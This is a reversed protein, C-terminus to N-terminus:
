TVWRVATIAQRIANYNVSVNNQVLYYAQGNYVIKDSYTYLHSDGVIEGQLTIEEAGEYTDLNSAIAQLTSLDAVPYTQRARAVGTLPVTIQRQSGSPKIAENQADITYQSAKNSPAGQSISSGTEQGFGDYTTTGYWGNGLPVHVTRSGDIWTGTADSGAYVDTKEEALFFDNESAEYSYAVRTYTVEDTDVTEKLSIRKGEDLDQYTYTTTRNGDVEQTLYGDTYTLSATGWSITGSFPEGGTMSDSSAIEKPIVTQYQSDAWQTRRISHSITPRVTWHAPTRTNTEYGQQVLYITGNDIYLSIGMGPVDGTWGILRNLIEGFTGSLVEYFDLTLGKKVSYNIDTKPYFDAGLYVIPLGIESSIASLHDRFTPREWYSVLISFHYDYKVRYTILKYLLSTAYASGSVIKRAGDDVYREVEYDYTHDLITGRMKSGVSISRNMVTGNYQITTNRPALSMSLSEYQTTIGGTLTVTIFGEVMEGGEYMWYSIADTYTGSELNRCRIYFTTDGNDLDVSDQWYTGDESFRITSYEAGIEAFLTGSVSVTVETIGNANLETPTMSITMSM